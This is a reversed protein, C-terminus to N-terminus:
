GSSEDSSDMRGSQIPHLRNIRGREDDCPLNSQLEAQDLHRIKGQETQIYHGTGSRSLPLVHLDLLCSFLARSPKQQRSVGRRIKKLLSACRNHHGLTVFSSLIIIITVKIYHLFQLVIKM